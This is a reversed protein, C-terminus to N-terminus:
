YEGPLLFTTSSRDAETIIWLTNEGYGLCPKTPDLAYASMIRNGLMLAEANAAKDEDCIAGWDGAVHRALCINLFVADLQSTESTAVILGLEFLPKDNM